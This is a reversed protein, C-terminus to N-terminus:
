SCAPAQEVGLGSSRLFGDEVQVLRVGLRAARAPLSAPMAAAWVAVAGGQRAAHRLAASARWFLRPEGLRGRIARRKFIEIGTAATFSENLM